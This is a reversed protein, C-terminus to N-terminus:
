RTAWDVAQELRDNGFFMEEGVMFTPAGFIGLSAARETAARLRPRRAPSEAEVRTAPGDVGLDALLEDIVEPAGIERDEGFNARMAARVFAPGWGREVGVLAVRAAAVSSRPFVSPRRFPVGLGGAIREVDRWMYRGRLPDIVFPSTNMGRAAFIPGLLFPSWRVGVGRAAAVADIRMAALYTYSSALECWFDIEPM